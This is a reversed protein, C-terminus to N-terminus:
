TPACEDDKLADIAAALAGLGLAEDVVEEVSAYARVRGCWGCGCVLAGLHRCLEPAKWVASSGDARHDVAVESGLLLEVVVGYVQEKGGVAPLLLAHMGMMMMM